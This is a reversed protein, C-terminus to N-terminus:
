SPDAIHIRWCRQVLFYFLINDKSDLSAAIMNASSGFNTVLCAAFSFDGEGMLVLELRQSSSYHKIRKEQKDEEM